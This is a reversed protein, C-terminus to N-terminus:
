SGLFVLTAVANATAHVVGVRQTHDAGAWEAWGSLADARCGGDWAFSVPPLEGCADTPFLDLFPAM